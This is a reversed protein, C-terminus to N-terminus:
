HTVILSVRSRCLRSALQCVATTAAETQPTLSGRSSGCWNILCCLSDLRLAEKSRFGEVFNAVLDSFFVVISAQGILLAKAQDTADDLASVVQLLLLEGRLHDGLEFVDEVLM